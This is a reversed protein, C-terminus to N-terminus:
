SAHRQIPWLVDAYKCVCQRVRQYAELPDWQHDTLDSPHSAPLTVM